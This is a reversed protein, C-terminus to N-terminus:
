ATEMLNHTAEHSLRILLGLMIYSVLLSSGGYSIFPLTVGTLPFLRIVGGMILLSQVGILTVLGIALLSRFTNRQLVLAIQLGRHVILAFCAILVLAGILGWEEGIASFIFDSHVVPIVDPFGQGVGEGIIGGASFAQLSQVIQYGTTSAVPWPNLWIDIRVQVVDILGYAFVGAAAVLGAGTVIVLLHGSAVYLLVIFVFFFIAATGLDRQWIFLVVSLGWMLLAPGYVRPSFAMLRSGSVLGESRLLPAQESLYSALFAALLIKLAESPQFFVSGFGLWLEPAGPTNSPNSGLLITGILLLFGGLLWLYRYSRLWIFIRASSSAAVMAAVAILLWVTQRDAFTPALRDIAVLGWGSLFMVIPFLLPDRLPCLRNLLWHGGIAASWWAGIATLHTLRDDPELITLGVYNVILFAGGLLLFWRENNIRNSPM